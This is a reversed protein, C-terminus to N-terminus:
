RASSCAATAAARSPWGGRRHHHRAGGPGRGRRHLRRLREPAQGEARGPALRPRVRRRRPHQGGGARRRARVLRQRLRGCLAAAARGRLRRLRLAADSQPRRRTAGKPWVVFYPVRTGDKSTAFRQEVRMGTADFFASRAKLPERADSGSRGLLLSEPTLFDIYSLLYAEALPDDPVQADHLSQAALTGPFPAPVERSTWTGDTSTSSRCAAPSTTWCSWCCRRACCRMAPWRARPPRRSCAAALAAQRRSLGTCRQGAVRRQALHQRGTALRQAAGAAGPRVLLEAARRRAQALPQLQATSSCPRKAPSSTPRAASCRASSAPRTTWASAPPSMAANAGRVGHRREALPQGRALAQHHAPLGFRHALRPRFRHRRLRTDRDIWDIDTKAEPLEFGGTSSAGRAAHRVRAGGGRRRRRAVPAAPLAPLGPRPVVRRGLGLERRRRPGPRRPRAATDWAPQAKRYEDLTTRRWLGRPHEADQWFNYFFGGRRAIAPIRDRSDLVHWSASRAHRAFGPWAECGSARPPMASACGPWPRSARCRRSGSGPTTDASAPPTSHATPTM